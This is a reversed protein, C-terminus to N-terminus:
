KATYTKRKLYDSMDPKVTIFVIFKRTGDVRYIFQGPVECNSGELLANTSGRSYSVTSGNILQLKLNQNAFLDIRSFMFMVFSFTGDTVLASQFSNLQALNSTRPRLYWTMIYANKAIFWPPVTSSCTGALMRTKSLKNLQTVTTESRYYLTSSPHGNSFTWLPMMQLNGPFMFFDGDSWLRVGTISHQFYKFTFGISMTSTSGSSAM